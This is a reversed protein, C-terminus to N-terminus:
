FFHKTTILLFLTIVVFFFVQLVVKLYGFCYTKKLELNLATCCFVNLAAFINNNFLFGLNQQTQM